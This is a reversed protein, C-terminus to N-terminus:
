LIFINNEQLLEKFVNIRIDNPLCQMHLIFSGASWLQTNESANQYKILPANFFGMPEWGIIDSYAQLHFYLASQDPTTTHYFQPDLYTDLLLQKMDETNKILIVGANFANEERSVIIEANKHSAIIAELEISINTIAADSDLYLFWEILPHKCMATYLALLKNYYVSFTPPVINHDWCLYSYNHKSAYSMNLLRSLEAYEQIDSNYVQVIGITM